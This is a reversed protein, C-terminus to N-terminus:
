GCPMALPHAGDVSKSKMEAFIYIFNQVCKSNWTSSDIVLTPSLTFSWTNNANLIYHYIGTGYRMKYFKCRRMKQAFNINQLNVQASKLIETNQLQHIMPPATLHWHNCHLVGFARPM